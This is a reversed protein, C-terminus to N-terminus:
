RRTTRRGVPSVPARRWRLRHVGSPDPRTATRPLRDALEPSVLIEGAAAAHEMQTTRTAAPGTVLLEHHASGVRFLQVAGLPPRGVDAAACPRSVAAGATAAHLAARMEVAASAAQTAHDAGIFLLLLADGGFKLMSGRRAFALDLMTGFVRNLM